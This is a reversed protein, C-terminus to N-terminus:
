LRRDNATAATASTAHIFCIDFDGVNQFEVWRRGALTNLVQVSSTGVVFSFQSVSMIEPRTTVPEVIRQLEEVDAKLRNNSTVGALRGRGDGGEIAVVSM